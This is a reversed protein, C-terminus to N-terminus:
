PSSGPPPPAADLAALALMGAHRAAGDIDPPAATPGLRAHHADINARMRAPDVELGACADALALVAGHASGLLGPWGALEAQWSGLGREHEQAMAALLTAAQHPARTAAAIAVLAAVPNRKHPM